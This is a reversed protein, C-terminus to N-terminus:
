PRVAKRCTECTAAGGCGAQKAGLTETIKRKLAAIEVETPERRFFHLVEGVVTETCIPKFVPSEANHCTLCTDFAPEIDIEGPPIKVVPEDSIDYVDDKGAENGSRKSM